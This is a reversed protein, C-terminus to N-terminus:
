GLLDSRPHVWCPNRDGSVMNVSRLDCSLDDPQIKRAIGNSEADVLAIRCVLGSRSKEEVGAKRRWVRMDRKGDRIFHRKTNM